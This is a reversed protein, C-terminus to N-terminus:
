LGTYGEAFFWTVSPGGVGVVDHGGTWANQYAFYMPREAIIPQSSNIRTSVSVNEGADANVDITYRSHPAVTHRTQRASGGEPMYTVTLNAPENGPNQLCLWEDFGPGTYGEAFYLDTAPQTAGIVDHGGTYSYNKTGHYDFYLPREAVFAARSELKLSVEQDPGVERNVSVTKRQNGPVTYYREITRGGKLMYVANVTIPTAGPNQLCLWEEFNPYTAGEAFYFTKSPQNIGLVVHGGTWNGAGLGQYDFYMPREAVIDRGAEVKVSFDKQAGIQDIVRVTTRSSAPLGVVAKKPGEGEIMYNLTATTDSGGPNQLCLYADFGTRTSGEAFYWTKAPEPAGVADSGGSWSGGYNFYLAREAIVPEESSVKASVGCGPMFKNIFVTYRSSPKVTCQVTKKQSKENMLEITVKAQKGGRNMLLIYEHFNAPPPPPPPLPPENGIPITGSHQSVFRFMSWPFLTADGGSVGKAKPGADFVYFNGGPISGGPADGTGLAVEVRGDGDFDGVAPSTVVFNRMNQSWLVNGYVDYACMQIGSGIMIDPVGDGTIDGLAPSGMMPGAFGKKDLLIRGDPRYATIHDEGIGYMGNCAIVVERVGDGNIDAIAPSSFTSGAASVPWGPVDRGDHTYAYVRHGETSIRHMAKYYHGTGVVIEYYGDGNIDAVAPSSWTVEPTIRPFGPVMSGDGNLAYLLGGAPYPWGSGGTSDAGIIIEKLGDRDIDALAPSSWVTDKNDYPWGPNVAGYYTWCEITNGYTGVVVDAVGDGTVDGVAPSSFVGTFGGYNPTRRPWGWKSLPRGHCDFGWMWGGMDGVWVEQKGDGDVDCCAPAGQISAGVYYNWKLQARSNFCYLQGNTNGVLIEAQGDRDIDSATLNAQYFSTNARYVGKIPKDITGDPNGARSGGPFALVLTCVLAGIVGRAVVGGRNKFYHAPPTSSM